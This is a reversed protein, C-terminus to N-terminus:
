GKDPLAADLRKSLYWAVALFLILMVLAAQGAVEGLAKDSVESFGYGISVLTFAWIAASPLNLATFRWRPMSSMGFAFGAFGRVGHPYRYVFMMWWHHHDILRASKEVGKRLRPFSDFLAGGFRRGMWFRLEDGVIGGIWVALVTPWFSLADMHVAYGAFLPLLLSNSAAYSAVFGYALNGQSRIIELIQALDM